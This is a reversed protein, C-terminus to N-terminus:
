IYQCQGKQQNSYNPIINRSMVKTSQYILRPKNM